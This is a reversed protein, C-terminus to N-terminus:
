RQILLKIVQQTENKGQVEDVVLYYLGNAVNGLKNWDLTYFQQKVSTALSDDEYVKRFSVTYLKLRVLDVPQSITHYFSLPVTGDWPNPWAINNSPYPTNTATPTDTPTCTNGPYGCPTPTFTPTPTYPCIPAPTGIWNSVAQGWANPPYGGNFSSLLCPSTNMSWATGGPYVYSHSNAGKLWAFFTNDFASMDLASPPCSFDPGFEGLFVPHNSTATTVNNDWVGTNTGKANGYIHASYVIGSGVNTLPYSDVQTLDYAYGLGGVLCINNAGTGRITNLITQMGPTSFSAGSGTGGRQWVSWAAANDSGSISYPENYLDFLVAPNNSFATAVSNWFTVSNADAMYQQGTASDWGTATTAATCGGPDTAVSSTGSWHLDLIVYTNQSSCFNVISTVLAQYNAASVAFGGNKFNTCGFWFDQSLPLRIITSNWATVAEQAVNLSNQGTPGAGVPSYEMGDVHVGNFHITCGGSAMIRNGSVLLQASTAFAPSVKLLMMVFGAWFLQSFRQNKLARFLRL